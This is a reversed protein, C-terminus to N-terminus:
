AAIQASRIIAFGTDIELREKSSPSRHQFISEIEMLWFIVSYLMFIVIICCLDRPALYPLVQTPVSDSATSTAVPRIANSNRRHFRCTRWVSLDLDM